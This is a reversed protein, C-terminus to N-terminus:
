WGGWMALGATGGGVAPIVQVGRASGKPGSAPATLFLVVSAVAAAGAFAFGADSVDAMTAASSELGLGTADCQLPNSGSCHAKAASTKSLTLVGFAAGVVLGAAGAGAVTAGAIRQGSWFPSAPTVPTVPAAPADLLAPVEVATIGPTPKITVTTKWGLKGPCSAEVTHEGPDLPIEADLAGAKLAVGDRRVECGEARTELAVKLALKSLLPALRKAAEAAVKVRKDNNKRAMAEAENAHSWASAYAGLQEEVWSLNILAGLAPDLALSAEIKRKAEALKGEKVLKGADNFLSDALAKDEATADAHALPARLLAACALLLAAIHSPRPMRAAYGLEARTGLAATCAAATV